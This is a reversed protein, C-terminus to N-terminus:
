AAAKAANPPKATASGTAPRSAIWDDVKSDHWGVARAGLAVPRPFTGRKIAEYISTRSLGTRVKVQALRLIFQSM